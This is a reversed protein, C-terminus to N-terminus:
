GEFSSDQQRILYNTEQSLGLLCSPEIAKALTLVRSISFVDFIVERDTGGRHNTQWFALIRVREHGGSGRRLLLREM